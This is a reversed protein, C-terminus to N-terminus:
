VVPLPPARSPLLVYAFSSHPQQGLKIFSIVYRLITVHQFLLSTQLAKRKDIGEGIPCADSQAHSTLATNTFEIEVIQGSEFFVTGSIYKTDSGTCIVLVDQPLSDKILAFKAASAIGILM